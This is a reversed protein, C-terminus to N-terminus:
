DYESEKKIRRGKKKGKRPRRVRRSEKGDSDSDDDRGKYQNEEDESIV